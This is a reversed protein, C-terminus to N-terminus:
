NSRIWFRAIITDLPSLIGLFLRNEGDSTPAAYALYTEGAVETEVLQGHDAPDAAIRILADSPVVNSYTANTDKPPVLWKDSLYELQDKGIATIARDILNRLQPKDAPV